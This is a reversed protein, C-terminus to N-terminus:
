GVILGILFGFFVIVGFAIGGWTVWFKWDKEGLNSFDFLSSNTMKSSSDDQKEDQDVPENKNQDSNNNTPNNTEEPKHRTHGVNKSVTERLQELLVKTEENNKQVAEFLTCTAHFLQDVVQSINHVTSTLRKIDQAVNTEQPGSREPRRKRSLPTDDESSSIPTHQPKQNKVVDLAEDLTNPVNDFIQYESSM